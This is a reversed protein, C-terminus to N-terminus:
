HSPVPWRGGDLLVSALRTIMSLALETHDEMMDFLAISPCELSRVCTIAEATAQYPVEALVELAGLAEGPGLLRADPGPGCRVTGDIIVLASAVPDGARSVIAGAPWHVERTSQTLAALAQIWGTAFTIQHRLLILRDVLGLAGPRFIYPLRARASARHGAALLQRALSRRVNSLLGFNDELVEAFDAAPLQLARTARVAIAPTAVVRGAMVELAGYVQRPGWAAPGAEIRGEVVLHLDPVRSPPAVVAGIPFEVEVVNEAIMALEALEADGLGPFQRLTLLRQISDRM